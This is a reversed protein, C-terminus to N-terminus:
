RTNRALLSLVKAIKQLLVNFLLKETYVIRSFFISSYKGLTVSVQSRSLLNQQKENSGNFGLVGTLSNRTKLTKDLLQNAKHVKSGHLNNNILDTLKRFKNTLCTVKVQM